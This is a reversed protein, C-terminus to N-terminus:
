NSYFYSNMQGFLTHMILWILTFIPPNPQNYLKAMNFEAFYNDM